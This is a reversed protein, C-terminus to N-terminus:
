LSILESFPNEATLCHIEPANLPKFWYFDMLKKVDKWPSTDRTDLDQWNIKMRVFVVQSAAVADNRFLEGAGGWWAFWQGVGQRTGCVLDM